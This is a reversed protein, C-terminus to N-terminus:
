NFILTDLIKNYLEVGLPNPEYDGDAVEVSPCLKVVVVLKGHPVYTAYKCIRTLPWTVVSREIRLASYEAINLPKAYDAYSESPWKDEPQLFRVARKTQVFADISLQEPNELVFFEVEDNSLKGGIKLVMYVYNFKEDTAKGRFFHSDPPYQFSYGAETDAYTLWDTASPTALVKVGQGGCGALSGVLLVLITIRLLWGQYFLARM